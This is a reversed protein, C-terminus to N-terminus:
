NEYTETTNHIYDVITIKKINNKPRYKELYGKIRDYLIKGNKIKSDRNIYFIIYECKQHLASSINSAVNGGKQYKLDAILGNIKFDPNKYKDVNIVPRIKIEMDFNDALFKDVDLTKKYKKSEEKFLHTYVKGKSQYVLEYPINEKLLEFAERVKHQEQNSLESKVKKFYLTENSFIEGTKAPNHQMAKPPKDPMKEPLPKANNNSSVAKVSCRCGWGNPPLWTDWFLDDIHKIIGNLKKHEMRPEAATSPMYELYPYVHKNAEFEQWRQAM